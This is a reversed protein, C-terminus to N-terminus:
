EVSIIYYYLPQGGSQVEVECDPYNEEIFAALEEASEETADAGYYIGVVESEDKISAKILEKTGEMVDEAVVEIQDNLMGLINGERIEKDGISTDRVAYTVTATDVLKIADKMAAEMEDPDADAEFCFMASIGEPVSRSPIVHLKKDESLAAAQEAALIINKNNPLVFIHDANIKDVANLIDETSPNMTQGGEIVEDVGLNKFIATLGAGASISVFGVDKKPQEM